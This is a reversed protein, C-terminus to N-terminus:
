SVEVKTSSESASEITNGGGKQAESTEIAPAERIEVSRRQATPKRPVKVVLVGNKYDASVEETKIDRLEPLYLHEHFSSYSSFHDGETKKSQGMITLVDDNLEVKINDKSIGPLEARVITEKETTTVESTPSATEAVEIAQPAFRGFIRDIERFPDRFSPALFDDGTIRNVDRRLARLLKGLNRPAVAM